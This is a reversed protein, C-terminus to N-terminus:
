FRCLDAHLDRLISWKLKCWFSLQVFNPDVFGFLLFFTGNKDLNRGLNHDM